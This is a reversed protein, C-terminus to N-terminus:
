FEDHAGGSKAELYRALLMTFLRWGATSQKLSVQSSEAM